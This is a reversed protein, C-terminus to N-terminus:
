ILRPTASSLIGFKWGSQGLYIKRGINGWEVLKERNHYAYIIATSIETPSVTSSYIGCENEGVVERNMPIDTTITVKKMALYEMLKLPSQNRWMDLNPLPVIGVDSAAIFRPVREYPVPAHFEVNKQLSLEIVLAKMSELAPGSGLLFFLLNPCQQKAIKIAKISEILGRHSGFSGHYMIVFRDTWSLERRLKHSDYKEPAYVEQSVGSTWVGIRDPEIHFDDCLQQKM